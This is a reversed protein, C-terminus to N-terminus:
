KRTSWLPSGPMPDRRFVESEQDLGLKLEEVQLRLRKVEAENQEARHNAHTAEAEKAEYQRSLKQFAHQLELMEKHKGHLDCQSTKLDPGEIDASLRKNRELLAKMEEVQIKLKRNERELRQKESELIERKDWEMNNGARLRELEARLECIVLDKSNQSESEERIERLLGEMGNEQKDHIIHFEKVSPVKSTKLDEYLRKWVSVASELREIEKELAVRMEREKQLVNHSEELQAQLASTDAGRNEAPLSVAHLTLGATTRCRGSPFLGSCDLSRNMEENLRIPDNVIDENQSLLLSKMAKVATLFPSANKSLGDCLCTSRSGRIGGPSPAHVGVLAGGRRHVTLLTQPPLQLFLSVSTLPLDEGHGKPPPGEGEEGDEGDDKLGLLITKRVKSRTRRGAPSRTDGASGWPPSSGPWPERRLEAGGPLGPDQSPQAGPAQPPCTVRQKKRLASLEKTVLDLELRLQRGEERAVNREGRVKSWKERWNATCDSWWRMTKEMQAARAQAEHLERQRLEECIDWAPGGTRAPSPHARAPPQETHPPGQFVHTEELFRHLADLNMAM